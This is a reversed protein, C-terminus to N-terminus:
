KTARGVDIFFQTRSREREILFRLHQEHREGGKAVAIAEIVDQREDIECVREFPTCEDKAECFKCIFQQCNYCVAPLEKAGARYVVDIISQCHGCTCTETTVVPGEPMFYEGVGGPRPGRHKNGVSM